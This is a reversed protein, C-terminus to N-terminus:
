NIKLFNFNEKNKDEKLIGEIKECYNAMFFHYNMWFASHIIM